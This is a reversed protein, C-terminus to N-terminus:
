FENSMSDTDKSNKNKIISVIDLIIWIVITMLIIVSLFGDFMESTNMFKTISATFSGFLNVALDGTKDFILYIFHFLSSPSAIWDNLGVMLIGCILSLMCSDILAYGLNVLFSLPLSPNSTDEDDDVDIDDDNNLLDKEKIGLMKLEEKTFIKTRDYAENSTNDNQSVEDIMQMLSEDVPREEKNSVSAKKELSSLTLTDDTDFLDALPNSKEENIVENAVQPTEEIIANVEKKQTLAENISSIMQNEDGLASELTDLVSIDEQELIAEEPKKNQEIIQEEVEKKQAKSYENQYITEIVGLTTPQDRYISHLHQYNQYLDQTNGNHRILLYQDALPALHGGELLINIIELLNNVVKLCRIEMEKTTEELDPLYIVNMRLENAALVTPRNAAIVLVEAPQLQYRNLINQYLEPNPLCPISANDYIIETPRHYLAAIKYLPETYKKEHTSTVICNIKKQRFLEMLEVLGDRHRLGYMKSYALLDEEIKSIMAEQTLLAADIPCHSFMSRCSGLDNLFVHKDFPSNYLRCLRRYYNYRLKTLDFMVDDFSLIVLKVNKTSQKYFM